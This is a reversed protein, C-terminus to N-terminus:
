NSRTDPANIGATYYDGYIRNQAGGVTV